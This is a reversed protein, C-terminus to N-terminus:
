LVVGALTDGSYMLLLYGGGAAIAAGILVGIAIAKCCDSVM